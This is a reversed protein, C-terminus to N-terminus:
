GVASSSALDQVPRGSLRRRSQQRYALELDRPVLDGPAPQSGATLARDLHSRTVSSMPGYQCAKHWAPASVDATYRSREAHM